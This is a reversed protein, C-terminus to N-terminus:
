NSASQAANYKEMEQRDWEEWLELTAEDVELPVNVEPKDSDLAFLDTPKILKKSHVNLLAATQWRAVKWQQVLDAKKAEARVEIMLMVEAITRNDVDSPNYGM